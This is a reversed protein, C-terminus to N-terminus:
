QKGNRDINDELATPIVKSKLEKLLELTNIHIGWDVEYVKCTKKEALILTIFEAIYDSSRDTVDIECIVEKPHHSIADHLCTGLIEAEVNELIKTKSYGRKELVEKIEWPARRLVFIKEVLDTQILEPSYHGDIIVQKRSKKILDILEESLTKMNVILTERREDIEKTSEESIALKSVDVHTADLKKQLLRSITTKGTGPIGTIILAPKM